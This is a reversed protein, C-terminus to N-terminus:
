ILGRNKLREIGWTGFDKPLPIIADEPKRGPQALLVSQSVDNM